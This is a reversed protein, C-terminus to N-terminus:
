LVIFALVYFEIEDIKRSIEPITNGDFSISQIKSLDFDAFNNIRVPAEKGSISYFSLYFNGKNDKSEKKLQELQDETLRCLFNLSFKGQESETDIMLKEPLKDALSILLDKAYINRKTRSM